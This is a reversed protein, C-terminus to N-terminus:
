FSNVGEVKWGQSQAFKTISKALAKSDVIMKGDTMQAKSLRKAKINNGVLEIKDPIIFGMWDRDTSDSTFHYNGNDDVRNVSSLIGKGNVHIDFESLIDRWLDLYESRTPANKYIKLNMIKSVKTKPQKM